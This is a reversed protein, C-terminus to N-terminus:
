LAKPTLKQLNKLFSDGIRYVDGAGMTVVLDGPHVNKLLYKLIDEFESIYIADQDKGRIASVLDRSHIEGTDKERAAYIDTIILRDVGDFADVFRDFLKKTRTYTHPQFICWVRNHPMNDITAITAKIENPHHAYDDIVTIGDIIGKVEFRRHTGNYMALAKSIINEDVGLAYGAAYAALANYINHKGPLKLHIPNMDQGNYSPTFTPCGNDDYSISHAMWNAKKDIGFSITNRGAEQMLKEVRPDDICGIVFGDEPVLRSYKLFSEYIHDIDRFYDLHDEDINLIIAIYPHFKLFSEVYECAETLFYESNGTRVNGGIEDVQGGVLITPDLNAQEMVVSLMSTTTTKGHTGSVGVAFPYTKMLQGLFTARDLLPISNERAAVFEPNDKGVAATYVVLQANQINKANHGIYIKAGKKVLRETIDSKRLDSGSVIYGKELLIEALGSMSIGGIGIFHIHRGKFNTFNITKM